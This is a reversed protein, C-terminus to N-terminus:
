EELDLVYDGLRIPPRRNRRPRGSTTVPDATVPETAQSPSDESQNGPMTIPTELVSEAAPSRTTNSSSALNNEYDEPTDHSQLDSMSTIPDSVVPTDESSAPGPASIDDLSSDSDSDSIYAGQSIPITSLVKTCASRHIKYTKAKLQTDTLKRLYLWNSVVSDVIYRPRSTHKTKENIIYVLDGVKFELTSPVDTKANILERRGHQLNILDKDQISIESRSFQDRRVWQEYSSLGCSRIRSNLASVAMALDDKM